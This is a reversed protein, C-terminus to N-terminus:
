PTWIIKKLIDRSKPGQVAINHLQDTSSKVWVKYGKEKAQRPSRKPTHQLTPKRPIQTNMPQAQPHEQPHDKTNDPHDKPTEWDAEGRTGATNKLHAELTNSPKKLLEEMRPLPPPTTGGRLHQRLTMFNWLVDPRMRLDDIALASRELRTASGKPGIFTVHISELAAQLVAECFQTWAQIHKYSLKGTTNAKKTVVKDRKNKM